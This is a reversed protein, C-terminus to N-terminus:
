KSFSVTGYKADLKFKANKPAKIVITRTVKIKERNELLNKIEISKLRQEEEIEKARQTLEAKRDALEMQRQAKREALEMQKEANRQALEAKRTALETRVKELRKSVKEADEASLKSAKEQILKQAASFEKMSAKMEKQWEIMYNQDEQFKEYDFEPIKATLEKIADANPLNYQYSFTAFSDLHVVNGPKGIVVYNSGKGDVKKGNVIVTSSNINDNIDFNLAELDNFKFNNGVVVRSKPSYSLNSSFLLNEERTTIEVLSKNGLAKFNWNDLTKEAKDDDVGEIKITAEVRVSNKSWPEIIIDTYRTDVKIEVDGNTNFEEKFTREHVKQAFGQLNFCLTLLTIRFLIKKM